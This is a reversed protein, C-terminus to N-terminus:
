SGPALLGQFSVACRLNKFWDSHALFDKAINLWDCLALFIVHYELINRFIGLIGSWSHGQNALEMGSRSNGENQWSHLPIAVSRRLSNGSHNSVMDDFNDKM